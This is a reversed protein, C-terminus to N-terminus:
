AGARRAEARGERLAHRAMPIYLAAAWYSLAVGLAGVGLGGARMADAGAATSAGYVLMPFATMLAFTGAKGYWTVDIRKAGLLALTPVSVFMIPERILVPLWLWVPVADTAVVIVVLTIILVLRDAAPDLVKGLESVQNTWRAVKGDVWDTAGMVALLAAAWAYEEVSVVLWVFLPVVLLRSVSIVNPLTLIRDQLILQVMGPPEQASTEGAAGGSSDM